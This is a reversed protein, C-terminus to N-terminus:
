IFGVMGNAAGTVGGGVWDDDGSCKMQESCQKMIPTCSSGSGFGIELFIRDDGVDDNSQLESGDATTSCKEEFCYQM